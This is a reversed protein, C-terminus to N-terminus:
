AIERQLEEKINFDKILDRAYGATMELTEAKMRDLCARAAKTEAEFVPMGYQLRNALKRLDALQLDCGTRIEHIEYADVAGMIAAATDFWEGDHNRFVAQGQTTEDITGDRELQDLIATLPDFVAAVKWPQMKLKVQDGDFKPRYPKRPRASRAM